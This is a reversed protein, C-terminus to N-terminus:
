EGPSANWKYGIISDNDTVEFEIGARAHGAAVTAQDLKGRDLEIQQLYQHPRRALHYGALLEGPSSEAPREPHIIAACIHVDADKALFQPLTEITKFPNPGNSVQAVELASTYVKRCSHKLQISSGDSPHSTNGGSLRTLAPCAMCSPLKKGM